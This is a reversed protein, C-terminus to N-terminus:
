NVKEMRIEYRDGNDFHVFVKSHDEKNKDEITEVFPMVHEVKDITCFMEDYCQGNEYFCVQYNTARPIGKPNGEEFRYWM